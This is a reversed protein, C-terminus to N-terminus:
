RLGELYALLAQLDDSELSVAPMRNGPKISQPDLIWGALNGTTNPLTGAALTRRSALHTLDPGTSGMAQTGQVTHCLPCAQSEFVARGRLALPNSPPAATQRQGALWAAFREPPEAIVLLAMHAHQWGCFEACQGRFVGAHDARIWTETPKGPILDKKGNLNPVWFSHIVDRAALRVHVPQGVPIHIENATIVRQSPMPDSYQVQWWWQYGVLDVNVAQPSEITELSRGTAVSAVLLGLLIVASVATAGGVWRGLRRESEVTPRVVEGAAAGSVLRSRRRAAGWLMSLLVLVYVATCIWLMMWWLGGIRAAQPGAPDLVSQLPAFLCLAM